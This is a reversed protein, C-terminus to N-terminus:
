KDWERNFLSWTTKVTDWYVGSRRTSGIGQARLTGNCCRKSYTGDGCLCGRRSKKPSSYSPTLFKRAM